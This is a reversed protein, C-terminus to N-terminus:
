AEEGRKVRGIRWEHIMKTYARLEEEVGDTEPEIEV